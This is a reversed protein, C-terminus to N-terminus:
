VDDADLEAELEDLQAQSLGVLPFDSPTHGGAADPAAAVHAAITRLAALWHDRVLARATDPVLLGAPWALTLVLSPGETSERVIGGADLVHNSALGIEAGPLRVDDAPQWDAGDGAPQGAIARGLYNFGIQPVPLAALGASTQPNLYRLLGFGLGDVARLQEKVLKVVRGPDLEGGLDLRVPHVATFWGVTRSLDVEGM